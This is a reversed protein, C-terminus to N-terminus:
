GPIDEGGASKWLKKVAELAAGSDGAPSFEFGVYGKYGSDRLAVLTEKLPGRGTGPEHRGPYDAIHAHGIHPAYKRVTDPPFDGMVGMHYFDCLIKLRPDGVEGIIARALSASSLFNGAHDIKTNLPELVIAMDQPVRAMLAKLGAIANAEKDEDRLFDLRHVVRGGDGLENSLVMLTLVGLTKAAKLSEELDALVLGHTAKDILDGRRHASFNVVKTGTEACAQAVAELNKDKHGWFEVYSFGHQAVRRIKEEAPCGPYLMEICVALKMDLLTRPKFLGTM